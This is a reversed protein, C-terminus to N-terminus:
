NNMKKLQLSKLEIKANLSLYVLVITTNDTVTEYTIYFLPRERKNQETKGNPM